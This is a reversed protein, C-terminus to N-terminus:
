TKLVSIRRKSSWKSNPKKALKRSITNAKMGYRTSLYLLFQSKEKKSLNQYYVMPNVNESKGMKRKNVDFTITLKAVFIFM